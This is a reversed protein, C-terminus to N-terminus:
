WTLVAIGSRTRKWAEMVVREIATGRMEYKCPMWFYNM